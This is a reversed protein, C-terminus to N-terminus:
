VICPSVELLNFGAKQRLQETGDRKGGGLFLSKKVKLLQTSNCLCAKSRIMELVWRFLIVASQYSKQISQKKRAM